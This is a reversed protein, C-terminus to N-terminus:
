VLRKMNNIFVLFYSILSVQILVAADHDSQQNLIDNILDIKETNRALVHDSIKQDYKNV